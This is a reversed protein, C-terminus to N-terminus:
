YCNSKHIFFLQIYQINKLKNFLHTIYIIFLILFIFIYTVWEIQDFTFINFLNIFWFITILIGALWLNLLPSYIDLNHKLQYQENM